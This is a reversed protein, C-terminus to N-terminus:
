SINTKSNAGHKHIIDSSKKRNAQKNRLIADHKSLEWLSSITGIMKKLPLEGHETQKDELHTEGFAM